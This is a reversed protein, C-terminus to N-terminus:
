RHMMGSAVGNALFILLLGIAVLILMAPIAAITWKVMFTVMSWFPMHIDTIVVEHKASEDMFDDSM